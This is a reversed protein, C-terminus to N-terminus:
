AVDHFDNDPEPLPKGRIRYWGWYLPAILLGWLGLGILLFVGVTCLSLVQIGHWVNSLFSNPQYEDGLVGGMQAEIRSRDRFWFQYFWAISIVM